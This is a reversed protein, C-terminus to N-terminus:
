NEEQYRYFLEQIKLIVNIGVGLENPRPDQMFMVDIDEEFRHTVEWGQNKFHECIARVFLNGGGWPGEVPKRNVLIKM